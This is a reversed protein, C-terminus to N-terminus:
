AAVGAQNHIITLFPVACAKFDGNRFVNTGRIKNNKNILNIINYFPVILHVLAGVCRCARVNPSFDFNRRVWGSYACNKLAMSPVSRDRSRKGGYGDDYWSFDRGTTM